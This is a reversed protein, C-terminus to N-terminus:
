TNRSNIINRAHAKYAKAAQIRISTKAQKNNKYYTHVSINNTPRNLVTILVIVFTNPTYIHYRNYLYYM